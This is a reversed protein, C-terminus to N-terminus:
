SLNRSAGQASAQTRDDIWATVINWAVALVIPGLFLGTMGFALLGGIVGVTSVIMPTTLGQSLFFPKVFADTLGIMGMCATLAVAPAVTLHTWAWITVVLAIPTPGIQVIGLVLIAFTLISAGPLGALSMAVGGVIAQLLSIGIVSRSVAQITAGALEVFGEGHAPDIKLALKKGVGVSSPGISFLFGMALLSMLLNLTGMGASGAYALLQEGLPKLQPLLPAVAALFHTSALSWFDFLQRGVFPLRGVFDPPAPMSFAGSDLQGLLDSVVEVLDIALWSLPGIVILLGLLTLLVAALIPRGGLAAALRKFIPYFTVTLVVSWVTISAFPYVIALTLYALAAALGLRITLQFFKADYRDLQRLGQPDENV